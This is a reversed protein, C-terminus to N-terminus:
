RFCLCLGEAGFEHSMKGIFEARAKAASKISFRLNRVQNTLTGITQDAQDLQLKAKHLEDNARNLENQLGEITQTMDTEM